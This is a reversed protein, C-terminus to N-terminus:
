TNLIFTLFPCLDPISEILYWVKGLYGFPFTVIVFNLVCVLALIDVRKWCTVVICCHAFAFAHCVCHLFSM